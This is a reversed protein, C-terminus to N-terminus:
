LSLEPHSMRIWGRNVESCGLQFTLVLMPGLAGSWSVWLRLIDRPQPSGSRCSRSTHEPGEWQVGAAERQTLVAVFM